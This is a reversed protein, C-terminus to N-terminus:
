DSHEHNREKEPNAAHMTGLYTDPAAEFRERCDNSCFQYVQGDHVTTKANRSDITMGCVPDTDTEPPLWRPSGASHGATDQHGSSHRHGTVHAGCGFRMMLFIVVAWVLFYLIAEM